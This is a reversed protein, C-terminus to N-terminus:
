AEHDFYAIGSSVGDIGSLKQLIKLQHNLKFPMWYDDADLFAIYNGTAVDLGRNRARGAGLNEPLSIIKVEELKLETVRFATQDTSGDDIVIVEVNGDYNQNLVSLIARKITKEANYAPIIVSIM